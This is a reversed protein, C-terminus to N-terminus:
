ATNHTLQIEIFSPLPFSFPPRFHSFPTSAKYPRTLLPSPLNPLTQKKRKNHVRFSLSFFGPSSSEQLCQWALVGPILDSTLTALLCGFCIQRYCLGFEVGFCLGVAGGLPLRSIACLPYRGSGSLNCWFRSKVPLLPWEKKKIGLSESTSSCQLIAPWIQGKGIVYLSKRTGTPIAPPM